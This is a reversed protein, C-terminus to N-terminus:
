IHILSLTPNISDFRNDPAGPDAPDPNSVRFESDVGTTLEAGRTVTKNFFDGPMDFPVINADWNIQRFGEAIPGSANGNNIGGLAAQFDAVTTAIDGTGEFLAM